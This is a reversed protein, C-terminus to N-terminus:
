DEIVIAEIQEAVSELVFAQAENAQEFQRGLYKMEKMIKPARKSKAAFRLESVILDRMEAATRANTRVIM